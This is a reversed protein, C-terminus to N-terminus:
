CVSCSPMAPISASPRRGAKLNRYPSLDRKNDLKGMRDDITQILDFIRYPDPTDVTYRV